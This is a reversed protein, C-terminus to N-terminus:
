ASSTAAGPARRGRLDARHAPPRPQGGARGRPPVAAARDALRVPRLPDDQARRAAEPEEAPGQLRGGHRGARDGGAARLRRLPPCPGAARRSPDGRASPRRVRGDGRSPSGPRDPSDPDGFADDIVRVHEPFRARYDQRRRTDRRPRPAAGAGAGLLEVLLAAAREPGAARREPLEEIRPGPARGGPPRSGSAPTTSGGPRPPSCARRGSPRRAATWDGLSPGAEPM